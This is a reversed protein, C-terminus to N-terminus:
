NGRWNQRNLARLVRDLVGSAQRLDAQTRALQDRLAYLDAQLIKIRFPRIEADTPRTHYFRHSPPGSAASWVLLCALGLIGGRVVVDIALGVGTTGVAYL